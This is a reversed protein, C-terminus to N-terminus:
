EHELNWLQFTLYSCWPQAQRKMAEFFEDFNISTDKQESFLAKLKNKVVLDTALFVNPEGAGRMRAYDVTWPGIGKLALCDDLNIETNASFYEAVSRIAQKRAAPMKLIDLTAQQLDVPLPFYRITKGNVTETKGYEAVLNGLLKVAQVISVQQGLIARNIAEFEDGTGSVRLGSQIVIGKPLAQSIEHEIQEINADLDLIRRVLATLRYLQTIKSTDAFYFDVQFGHKEPLHRAQFYGRCDSYNFSKVYSDNPTFWEMDAVARQSLFAKMKEWNYPPRYSLFLSLGNKATLISSINKRIQTPSLGLQTQFSHNFSRISEFGANLAVQTIPLDTEHLMKKAFLIKQYNMYRKPSTGLHKQFLQRLYRASIGLRAALLELDTTKGKSLNQEILKIARELTTQTGKWAPSQPASDPRCRLCPRLGANAAEIATTFYRVNKEHAPPAPCISRCYIGTSTVGTFFIGDFRPDRALRARLYIEDKTQQTTQSEM